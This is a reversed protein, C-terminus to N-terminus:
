KPELVGREIFNNIWYEYQEVNEKTSDNKFINIAKL